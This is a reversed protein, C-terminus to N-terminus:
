IYNVASSIPHKTNIHQNHPSQTKPSPKKENKKVGLANTCLLNRTTPSATFAIFSFRRVHPYTRAYAYASLARPHARDHTLQPLPISFHPPILLFTPSYHLPLPSHLASLFDISFSPSSSPLSLSARFSYAKVSHLFPLAPFIFPPIERLLARLTPFYLVFRPFISTRPQFLSTGNFFRPFKSEFHSFPFSLLRYFPSFRPRNRPFDDSTPGFRPFVLFFYTECPLFRTRARSFVGSFLSSVPFLPFFPSKPAFFSPHPLPSFIPKVTSKAISHPSM